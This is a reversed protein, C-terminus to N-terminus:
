DTIVKTGKPPVLAFDHEPRRAGPALQTFTFTTRNGAADIVALRKVEGTPTVLLELTALGEEKPALTLEDVGALAPKVTATYRSLLEEPTELFVIPLREREGPSLTKVVLQKDAEVYQRGAKGDFTFVKGETGDYDFRVHDPPQIVVHGTEPSASSFGAPAYTEVFAATVSPSTAYTKRIRALLDAPDGSTVLTQAALLLPLLNM